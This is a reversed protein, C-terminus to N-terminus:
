VLFSKQDCKKNNNICAPFPVDYHKIPMQHPIHMLWISKSNLMEM